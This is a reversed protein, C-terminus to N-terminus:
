LPSLLLMQAEESGLGTLKSVHGMAYAVLGAVLVGGMTGLTANFTKKTFGNSILLTTVTVLMCTYISITIPSYGKLILPLM